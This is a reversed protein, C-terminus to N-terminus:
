KTKPEERWKIRTASYVFLALIQYRFNHVSSQNWRWLPSINSLLPFLFAIKQFPWLPACTLVFRALKPCPFTHVHIRKGVIAVTSTSGDRHTHTHTHTKTRARTHTHTHTHKRVRTHTHTRARREVEALALRSVEWVRLDIPPLNNFVCACTCMGDPM